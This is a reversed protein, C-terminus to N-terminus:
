LNRRRLLAVYDEVQEYASHEPVLRFLQLLERGWKGRDFNVTDDGFSVESICTRVCSALSSATSRLLPVLNHYGLRLPFDSLLNVYNSNETDLGLCPLEVTKQERKNVNLRIDKRFM